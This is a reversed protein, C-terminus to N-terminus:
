IHRSDNRSPNRHSQLYNDADDRWSVFVLVAVLVLCRSRSLLGLSSVRLSKVDNSPPADDPLRTAFCDHHVTTKRENIM